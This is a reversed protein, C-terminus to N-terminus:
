LSLAIQNTPTSITTVGATTLCSYHMLLGPVLWLFMIECDDGFDKIKTDKPQRDALYNVPQLPLGTCDVEADWFHSPKLVNLAKFFSLTTSDYM